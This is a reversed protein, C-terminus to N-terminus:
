EKINNLNLLGQPKADKGSEVVSFRSGPVINDNSLQRVKERETLLCTEIWDLFNLKHQERTDKWEALLNLKDLEKLM